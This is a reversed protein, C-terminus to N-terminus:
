FELIQNVYWDDTALAAANGNDQINLLGETSIQNKLTNTDVQFIGWGLEADIQKDQGRLKFSNNETGDSSIIMSDNINKLNVGFVHYLNYDINKSTGTGEDVDATDSNAATLTAGDTFVGTGGSINYFYLTGTLGAGGSDYVCTATNTGDSFTMGTWDVTDSKNDYTVGNGIHVNTWDSRNQWGVEFYTNGKMKWDTGTNKYVFSDGKSFIPNQSIQQGKYRLYEAGEADVIVLGENTEEHEIEFWKGINAALTPLTVTLTGYQSATNTKCSIKTGSPVWDAITYDVETEIIIQMNSNLPIFKTAGSDYVFWIWQGPQLIIEEQDISAGFDVEVTVTNNNQVLLKNTEDAGTGGVLRAVTCGSSLILMSYKDFEEVTHTTNSSLETTNAVIKKISNLIQSASYVESNGDPTDDTYNLIAQAVGWILDVFIKVFETGDTAGGGSSNVAQTGPFAVGNHNTFSNYFDKM